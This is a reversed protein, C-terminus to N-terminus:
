LKLRKFIVEPIHRIVWMILTWFSPSYATPKRKNIARVIEMAVKDPTTWLAGKQFEATMPTDVFGPRIDVVHVGSGSLRNRLGQLFTSTMAKAAGYVYNSQRGRDGAVSTIVAVTGSGQEELRNAIETLLAIHSLGNIHIADLTKEVSQRCEAQDPLIGHAILCIDVTKLNRFAEAVIADYDPNGNLDAQATTVGAAGRTRLDQALTDLREANRAILHLNCGQKAYLRATARAIASTAGIILINPM